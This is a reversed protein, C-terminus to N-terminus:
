YDAEDNGLFELLPACMGECKVEDRIAWIAELKVRMLEELGM